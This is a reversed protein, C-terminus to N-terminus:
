AKGSAAERTYGLGAGVLVFLIGALVIAFKPAACWWAIEPLPSANHGNLIGLLALNEIADLLGAPWQLWALTRGLLLLRRSRANCLVALIGLAIAQPYALLFAFDVGIQRAITVCAEPGWADMIEQAKEATGAFEFHIINYRASEGPVNTTFPAAMSQLVGAIIFTLLMAAWYANRLTHPALKEFPHQMLHIYSCHPQSDVCVVVM